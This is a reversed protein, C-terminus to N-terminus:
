RAEKAKVGTERECTQRQHKLRWVEHMWQWKRRNRIGRLLM